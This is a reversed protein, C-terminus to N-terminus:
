SLGHSIRLEMDEDIAAANLVYFALAARQEDVSVGWDDQGTTFIGDDRSGASGLLRDLMGVVRFVPAQCKILMAHMPDKTPRSINDDMLGQFRDSVSQDIRWGPIVEQLVWGAADPFLFEATKMYEEWLKLDFLETQLTTVPM